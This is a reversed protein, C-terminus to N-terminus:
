AGHFNEDDACAALDSAEQQLPGIPVLYVTGPPRVDIQAVAVRDLPGNLFDVRLGHHESSAQGVGVVALIMRPLRVSDIDVARPRDRLFRAASM